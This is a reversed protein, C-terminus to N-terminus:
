RIRKGTKVDYIHIIGIESVAALYKGDMSFAAYTKVARQSMAHVLNLKLAIKTDPNFEVKWTSGPHKARQIVPSVDTQMRLFHNGSITSDKRIKDDNSIDNEWLNGGAEEDISSYFESSSSVPSLNDNTTVCSKCHQCVISGKGTGVVTRRLEQLEKALNTDILTAYTAEECAFVSLLCKRRCEDRQNRAEDLEQNLCDFKQRIGNLYVDLHSDPTLLQHDDTMHQSTMSAFIHNLNINLTWSQVNIPSIRGTVEHRKKKKRIM